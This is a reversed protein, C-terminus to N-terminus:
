YELEKEYSIFKNIRNNIIDIDLVKLIEYLNPSDNKSTIINRIYNCVDGIHGNYNTSDEKYERVNDAYNYKKCIEKIKNFWTEEDDNKSYSDIFDTLIEKIAKNIIINKYLEKNEKESYLQDYMYWFIQKFDSYCSIDKRPRKKNREINLVSITYDRKDIILNYLENDYKKSYNILGEYIEEAKLSSFYTKSINVLKDYDFLPGSLSMKKFSFNFENIDCKYSNNYWTDFDSNILTALYIKIAEIPFGKQYYFEINCEPDKRKSLKRVTNGDKKNIPAIHAYKPIKFGLMKFLQYHTPLSSLWEDGRIIHTTRMLHDDVVHAFHYTPLGDSKILVIDLDNQPFMIKGKILDNVEEKVNFNGNSKLRIVYPMKNDIRKKIENFSLNRSIAYKGYYGIRDGNKEQIKRIEDLEEKTCFCPYALGKAVMEKAFSLYIEKRESQIYPGYYGGINPGENVIYNLSNLSDIINSIGNEVKRKQDTDEIRIYFVGNNKRAFLESIFSVYLSGMHIFGTPSPAFRTVFKGNSDVREPYLTEYFSINKDIDPFLIDALLKNDM